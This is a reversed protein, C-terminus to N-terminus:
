VLINYKASSIRLLPIEELRICTTLHVYGKDRLAAATCRGIGSSGGTVVAIKKHRVAM